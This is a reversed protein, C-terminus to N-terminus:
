RPGRPLRFLRNAPRGNYEASAGTLRSRGALALLTEDDQGDVM